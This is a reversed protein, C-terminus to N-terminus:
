PPALELVMVWLWFPEEPPLDPARLPSSVRASRSRAASRSFKFRRLDWARSRDRASAEDWSEAPIRVSLPELPESLYAPKGASPACISRMRMTPPRGSLPEIGIEPALFAVRGSIIALM